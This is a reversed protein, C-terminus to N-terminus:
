GPTLTGDIRRPINYPNDDRLSPPLLSEPVSQYAVPRLFREIALSGVSTSRGDSTAPYPGGHVMAHGVEVGTPWDNFLVRGARRELLPLLTRAGDLDSQATHVTTTLQGELGRVVDTIQQLDRCRVVLSAAGFMERQLEPDALFDDGDVTMLLARGASASDPASGEALVTVQPHAAVNKAEVRYSQAIRPTLMTAGTDSKVQRAATDLFTTLAPGDVAITLGPNTCFQGAGLTLSAVFATALDEPRETLAGPMLIVPNISSMEAYVPIPQRREAATRKLAMGATRSGTFGVAQIRPDSVLQTGLTWGEGILLSFVGDPMGTDKIAARIAQAAVESTGLHADHAKVVVPCGAALASATDGGLVSFAMPFNSAGFVAVPGLPIHQQRIDPRPQPARDPQAPDIRAGYWSGECLVNAFMRLQGTTRAVEGTLRALPLGTELHAREVIADTAATLHHAISELFRARQWPHTSRYTDFAEEALQCARAVDAAQGHHYPPDLEQGTHPNTSRIQAGTGTVREAGIFMAGQLPAAPAQTEHTATM